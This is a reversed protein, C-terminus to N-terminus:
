LLSLAVVKVANALLAIPDDNENGSIHWKGGGNLDPLVWKFTGDDCLQFDIYNFWRGGIKVCLREGNGYDSVYNPCGLNSYLEDGAAYLFLGKLLEKLFYGIEMWKIEMNREQHLREITVRYAPLDFLLQRLIIRRHGNEERLLLALRTRASKSDKWSVTWVIEDESRREKQSKMGIEGWRELWYDVRQEVESFLNRWKQEWALKQPTMKTVEKALVNNPLNLTIKPASFM